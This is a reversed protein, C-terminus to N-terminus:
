CNHRKYRVQSYSFELGTISFMVEACTIAFYQFVLWFMSVRNAKVLMHLKHGLENDTNGSVVMIYSAGGGLKLNKVISKMNGDTNSGFDLLFLEYDGGKQIEIETYAILGTTEGNSESINTPSVTKSFKENKLLFSRNGKEYYDFSKIDFVLGVYAGGKEPKTLIKPFDYKLILASNAACISETVFLIAGDKITGNFHATYDQANCNGVSADLRIQITSDKSWKDIKINEYTYLGYKELTQNYKETNIQNVKIGVSLGNIVTLHASNDLVSPPLDAEIWIQFFACITFALAALLGGTTIRQLPKTLLNMKNFLPYIAYDFVPIMTIILVPNVVQIQDPKLRFIGFISGDMQTAQITWRSGQQDFLAWFLPLPLYLFLIRM